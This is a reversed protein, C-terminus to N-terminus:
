HRGFRNAWRTTTVIEWRVWPIVGRSAEAAANIIEHIELHEDARRPRVISMCTSGASHHTPSDRRSREDRRCRTSAPLEPDLQDWARARMRYTVVQPKYRSPDDLSEAHVTLIQPMASNRQYTDGPKQLANGAADLTNTDLVDGPRLHAVRPVTAYVYKVNDITARYATVSATEAAGAL